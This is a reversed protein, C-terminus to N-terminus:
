LDFLKASNELESLLEKSSAALCRRGNESISVYGGAERVIHVGAAYDWESQGLGLFADIKGEALYALELATSGWRRLVLSKTLLDQWVAQSKMIAEPSSAYSMTVYAQELTKCHSVQLPTGEKRAGQGTLSQYLQHTSPNIIVGLELEGKVKLAISVCYHPINRAFNNTGDIPDIVWCHDSEGSQGHEEGLFSHEPYAEAIVERILHETERDVQTVIDRPNSKTSITLAGQFSQQIRQAALNAAKIAISQYKMGELM